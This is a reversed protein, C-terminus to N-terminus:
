TKFYIVSHLQCHNIMLFSVNESNWSKVEKQYTFGGFIGINWNEEIKTSISAWQKEKLAWNTKMTEKYIQTVLIQNHAIRHVGWKSIKKNNDRSSGCTLRCMEMENLELMIQQKQPTNCIGM